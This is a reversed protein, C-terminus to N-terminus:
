ADPTRQAKKAYAGELVEKARHVKSQLYFSGNKANREFLSDYRQLIEEWSARETVGLVQRAEPEAMIKSARRINKVAENAVGNKSANSIAQQYARLVARGVIASGMVLVNALVKAAM